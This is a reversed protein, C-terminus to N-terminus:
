PTYVNVKIEDFSFGDDNECQVELNLLQTDLDTNSEKMNLFDLNRIFDGLKM